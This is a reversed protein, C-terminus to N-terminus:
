RSLFKRTDRAGLMHDPITLDAPDYKELCLNQCEAIIQDLIDNFKQSKLVVNYRGLYEDIADTVFPLTEPTWGLQPTEIERACQVEDPVLISTSLVDQFQIVDARNLIGARAKQKIQERAACRVSCMGNSKM